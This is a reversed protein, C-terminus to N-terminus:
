FSMLLVYVWNKGGSCSMVGFRLPSHLLLLAEHEQVNSQSGLKTGVLYSHSRFTRVGMNGICIEPDAHNKTRLSELSSVYQFSM